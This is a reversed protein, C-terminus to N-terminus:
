GVQAFIICYNHGYKKSCKPCYAYHTYYKIATKNQEVLYSDMEKMWKPVSEYPGDFVKSIFTGSITTMKSNPVEKSVTIYIESKWASPDYTLLLYDEESTSASAADIKAMMKTIVGGMNLPIHLFTRVTDQVFKKNEWTHTKNDWKTPNFEPCCQGDKSPIESM